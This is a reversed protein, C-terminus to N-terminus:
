PQRAIRALLATAAMEANLAPELATRCLGAHAYNLNEYVEATAPYAALLSDLLAGPEAEALLRQVQLAVDRYQQASASRPTADLRQLLSAMAALTQLQLPVRLSTTTTDAQMDGYSLGKPGSELARM